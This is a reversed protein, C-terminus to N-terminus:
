AIREYHQILPTDSRQTFFRPPLRPKKKHSKELLKEVEGKPNPHVAKQSCLGHPYNRPRNKELTLRPTLM